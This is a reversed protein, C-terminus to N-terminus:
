DSWKFDKIFQRFTESFVEVDETALQRPETEALKGHSYLNILRTRMTADNHQLCDQWRNYGLFNATKECLARFLNFHHKEVTNTDIAAQIVQKVHLHYAFPAEGQGSLLLTGDTQKTLCFKKASDLNSTYIINYFLAHHTLVLVKIGGATLRKIVEVLDVAMNILKTDDISSVPDDIIVYQLNNFLETSRDDPKESLTNLALELITRFIAWVLLSEEGKSAKINEINDDDGTAINFTVAGTTFDFVPDVKTYSYTKFYSAVQNELGEDRITQLLRSQEVNFHLALEENDWHFVDEFLVGYSMVTISEDNDPQYTDYLTHALRTKGTTNFAYVAVIGLPQNNKGGSAFERKIRRTLTPIGQFVSM